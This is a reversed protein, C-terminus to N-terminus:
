DSRALWEAILKLEMESLGKGWPCRKALELVGEPNKSYKSKLFKVPKPSGPAHCKICHNKFLVEGEPSAFAIYLLSTVGLFMMKM